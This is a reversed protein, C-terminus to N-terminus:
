NETTRCLSISPKNNQFLLVLTKLTTLLSLKTYLCKLGRGTPPVELLLNKKKERLCMDMDRLTLLQSMCSPAHLDWTLLDSEM